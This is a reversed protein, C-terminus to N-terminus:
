DDEEDYENGFDAKYRQHVYEAIYATQHSMGKYYTQISVHGEDDIRMIAVIAAQYDETILDEAAERIIENPMEIKVEENQEM